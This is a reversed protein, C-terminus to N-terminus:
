SGANMYLETCYFQVKYLFIFSVLDSVIHLSWVHFRSFCAQTCVCVCLNIRQNFAPFADSFTSILHVGENEGLNEGLEM